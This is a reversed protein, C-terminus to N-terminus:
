SDLIFRIERMHFEVGGLMEAGGPGRYNENAGDNLAEPRM